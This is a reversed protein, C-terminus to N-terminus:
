KRIQPMWCPKRKALIRKLAHGPALKLGNTTLNGCLLLLGIACFLVGITAWDNL